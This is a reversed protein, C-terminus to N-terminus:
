AVVVCWYHYAVIIWVLLPVSCHCCILLTVSCHCFVLLAVSCHCSVLFTVSCHCSVLFTVSCHCCVLLTVHFCCVLLSISCHFCVLITVSCHCCVLLTVSCRCCVLLTIHCCCVLLTVSCCYVLLTVSCHCCVQLTGSNLPRSYLFQLIIDILVSIFPIYPPPLLNHNFTTLLYSNKLLSQSWKIPFPAVSLTHTQVSQKFYIRLPVWLFFFEFSYLYVDLSINTLHFLWLAYSFKKKPTYM